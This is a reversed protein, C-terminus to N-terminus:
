AVVLFAGAKLLSGRLNDTFLFQRSSHSLVLLDYFFSDSNSGELQVLTCLFRYAGLFSKTRVCLLFFVALVWGEPFPDSANALETSTPSVSDAM